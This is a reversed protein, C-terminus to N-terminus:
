GRRLEEELGYDDHAVLLLGRVVRFYDVNNVRWDELFPILVVGLIKLKLTNVFCSNHEKQLVQRVYDRL